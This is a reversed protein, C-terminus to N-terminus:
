AKVPPLLTSRLVGVLLETVHDDAGDRSSAALHVPPVPPLDGREVLGEPLPGALALLAVGLGARAANVTGALYAAEGVVEASIDNEALARLAASRIACPEQIAVLPLATGAPPPTWNPAACWRLPLTGVTTGPVASAEAVFVALDITGRSIAQNLRSTRDFRFQAHLHPLHEDLAAMLPPLIHDAAHETAGIILQTREAIALRRLAQDHAAIIQRAEALLAEGAKTFRTGRGSPEVLPQGVVAELRRVHQSVASQTLDLASAARHFGGSDGIAILSRLPVIDLVKRM